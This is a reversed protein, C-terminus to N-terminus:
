ESRGQELKSLHVHVKMAAHLPLYGHLLPHVQRHLVPPFCDDNEIVDLEISLRGALKVLPALFL